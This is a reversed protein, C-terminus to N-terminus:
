VYLVQTYRCCWTFGQLGVRRNHYRYIVVPALTLDSVLGGVIAYISAAPLPPHGRRDSAADWNLGMMLGVWRNHDVLGGIIYISAPDVDVLENESDATLYVLREAKGSSGAFHQVCDAETRTVLWNALGTIQAEGRARLEGKWGVLHLHCPNPM